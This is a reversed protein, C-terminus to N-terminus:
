KGMLKNIDRVGGRLLDLGEKFTKEQDARVALEQGPDISNEDRRSTIDSIAKWTAGLNGYAKSIRQRLLDLKAPNQNPRNTAQPSKGTASIGAWESKADNIERINHSIEGLIQAARVAEFSGHKLNELQQLSLQELTFQFAMLKDSVAIDEEFREGQFDKDKLLDQLQQAKRKLEESINNKIFSEFSNQFNASEVKQTQAAQTQAAANEPMLLAGAVVAGRLVRKITSGAGANIEAETLQTNGEDRPIFQRREQNM